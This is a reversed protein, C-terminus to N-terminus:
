STKKILSCTIRDGSQSLTYNALFSGRWYGIHPISFFRKFLALSESRCVHSIIKIPNEKYLPSLQNRDCLGGGMADEYAYVATGIGSLMIAGFCMLCPELTTYLTMDRRDLDLSLNELKKLTTMEAHELESPVAQKTKSRAGSAIIDDKHVILCGVPFEQAELAERALNLAKKM